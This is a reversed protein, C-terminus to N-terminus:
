TSVFWRNGLPLLAPEDRLFKSDCELSNQVFPIGIRFLLILWMAVFMVGSNIRPNNSRPTLM